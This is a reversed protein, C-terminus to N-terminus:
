NKNARRRLGILGFLGSGMLWVAGPIPTATMGTAFVVDNACSVTYAVSLMEFEIDLGTISVELSGSGSSWTPLGSWQVQAVPSLGDIVGKIPHNERYGSPANSMIYSSADSYDANFAYVNATGGDRGNLSVVYDLTDDDNVNIFLDGSTLNNYASGATFNMSFGTMTNGNEYSVSGTTFNPVGIVDKNDDNTGNAWGPWYNVSDVIDYVSAQAASVAFILMFLTILTIRTKM